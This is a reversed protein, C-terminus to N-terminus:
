AQASRPTPSIATQNFRPYAINAFFVREAPTPAIPAQAVIAAQVVPQALRM